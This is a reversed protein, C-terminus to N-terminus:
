IPQGFGAKCPEATLCAAISKLLDPGAVGNIEVEEYGQNRLYVQLRLVTRLDGNRMAKDFDAEAEARKGTKQNLIARKLLLNAHEHPMAFRLASTLDDVAESNLGLAERYAARREFAGLPPPRRGEAQDIVITMLSLAKATRGLRDYAEAARFYPHGIGHGSESVALPDYKAGAREFSAAARGIDGSIEYVLGAEFLSNVHDPDIKLAEAFSGLAQNFLKIKAYARGTMVLLEIDRPNGALVPQLLALAEHGKDYLVLWEARAVIAPTFTSDTDIATDLYSIAREMGGQTWQVIRALQLLARAHERPTHSAGQRVRDCAEVRQQADGTVLECQELDSAFSAAGATVLSAILCVGFFLVRRTM